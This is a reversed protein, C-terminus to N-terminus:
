LHLPSGTSMDSRCPSQKRLVAPVRFGKPQLAFVVIFFGGASWMEQSIAQFQSQLQLKSHQQHLIDNICTTPQSNDLNLGVGIVVRFEKSRFTSHCLIGGIKMNSSYIDNPWKIAIDINHDQLAHADASDHM